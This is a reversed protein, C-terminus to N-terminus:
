NEKLFHLSKKSCLKKDLETFSRKLFCQHTPKKMNTRNLCSLNKYNNFYYYYYYYSLYISAKNEMYYICVYILKSPLLSLINM